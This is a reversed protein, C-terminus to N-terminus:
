YTDFDPDNSRLFDSTAKIFEKGNKKLDRNPYITQHKGSAVARDLADIWQDESLDQNVSFLKELGKITTYPANIIAKHELFDYFSQRFQNSSFPMDIESAFSLMSNLKAKQGKTMKSYTQGTPEIFAYVKQEELEETPTLHIQNSKQPKTENEAEDESEIEDENEIHTPKPNNLGQGVGSFVKKLEGPTIGYKELKERASKVANNDGELGNPYQKKIIEPFFWKGDSLQIIRNGFAKLVEERDIKMGMYVQAIEFDPIWIGAHDSDSIVYLYFLKHAGSLGRVFPKKFYETDLNRRAM